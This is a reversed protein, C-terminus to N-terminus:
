RSTIATHSFVIWASAFLMVVAIAVIRPAASLPEGANLGPTASPRATESQVLMWDPPATLEMAPYRKWPRRIAESRPADQTRYPLEPPVSESPSDEDTAIRHVVQAETRTARRPSSPPTARATADPSACQEPSAPPSNCVPGPTPPARGTPSEAIFQAATRPHSTPSPARTESGRNAGSGRAPEPSTRAVTSIIQTRATHVADTEAGGQHNVIDDVVNASRLHLADLRGQPARQGQSAYRKTGSPGTSAHRDTQHGSGGPVSEEAPGAESATM